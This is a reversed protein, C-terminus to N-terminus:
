MTHIDGPRATGAVGPELCAHDLVCEAQGPLWEASPGMAKGPFVANSLRSNAAALRKWGSVGDTGDGVPSPKGAFAGLATPMDAARRAFMSRTTSRPILAPPYGPAATTTPRLPAVTQSFPNPRM